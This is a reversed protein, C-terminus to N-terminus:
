KSVVSATKSRDVVRMSVIGNFEGGTIFGSIYCDGFKENFDTTGPFIGSMPCFSANDESVLTQNVVKVSIVANLDSSKIKMADTVLGLTAELLRISVKEENISDGNGAVEVTGRKISSSHSVKMSSVVESLHSVFKSSYSVVQSPNNMPKVDSAKISVAGDICMAQTYSNFGMGLRMSDNYPALLLAM